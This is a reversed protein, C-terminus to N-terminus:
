FDRSSDVFRLALHSSNHLNSGKGEGLDCIGNAAVNAVLHLLRGLRGAETQSGSLIVYRTDEQWRKFAIEGLAVIVKPESSQALTALLDLSATFCICSSNLRQYFEGTQLCGKNDQVFHDLDHVSSTLRASRM